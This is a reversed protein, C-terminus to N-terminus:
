LIIFYFSPNGSYVKFYLQFDQSPDLNKLKQFEDNFNNMDWGLEEKIENSYQYLTCSMEENNYFYINCQLFNKFCKLECYDEHIANYKNLFHATKIYSLFTTNVQQFIPEFKALNFYFFKLIFWFLTFTILIVAKQNIFQMKM